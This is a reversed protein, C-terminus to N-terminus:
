LFLFFLLFRGAQKLHSSSVAHTAHICPPAKHTHIQTHTFKNHLLTQMNTHARTNTFSMHIYVGLCTHSHTYKCRLSLSATILICQLTASSVYTHTRADHGLMQTTACCKTMGPVDTHSYASTFAPGTVGTSNQPIGQSCLGKPAGRRGEKHCWAHQLLPGASFRLKGKVSDRHFGLGQGKWGASLVSSQQMFWVLLSLSLFLFICCFFVCIYTIVILNSSYTPLCIGLFLATSLSPIFPLPSSLFLIFYLSLYHTSLTHPFFISLYFSLHLSIHYTYTRSLEKAQLM